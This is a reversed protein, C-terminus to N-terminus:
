IKAFTINFPASKKDAGKIKLERRIGDLLGVKKFEDAM